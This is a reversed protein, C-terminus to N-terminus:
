AGEKNGWIFYLKSKQHLPGNYFNYFETKNLARQSAEHGLCKKDQLNLKNWHSYITNKLTNNPPGKSDVTEVKDTFVTSDIVIQM